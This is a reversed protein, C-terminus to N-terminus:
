VVYKIGLCMRPGKSFAVMYNTLKSSGQGLWRDPIFTLPDPFIDPNRHVFTHSMSVVTQEFIMLEPNLLVHADGVNEPISYGM